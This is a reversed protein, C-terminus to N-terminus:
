RGRKKSGNTGGMWRDITVRYLDSPESQGMEWRVVTRRDVGLLEALAQQSLGRELRLRRLHNVTFSM